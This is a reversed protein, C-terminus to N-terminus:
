KGFGLHIGFGGWWWQTGQDTSGGGNGTLGLHTKEWTKMRWNISGEIGTRTEYDVSEGFQTINIAHITMFFNTGIPQRLGIGIRSFRDTGGIDFGQSISFQPGKQFPSFGVVSNLNYDMGNHNITSTLSQDVNLRWEAHGVSSLGSILLLFAVM